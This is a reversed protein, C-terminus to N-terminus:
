LLGLSAKLQIALWDDDEIHIKIPEVSALAAPLESLNVRQVGPMSLVPQAAITLVPTGSLVADIPVEAGSVVVGRVSAAVVPFRDAPLLSDAPAGCRDSFVVDYDSGLAGVIPTRGPGETDNPARLVIVSSSRSRATDGDRPRGFVENRSARSLWGGARVDFGRGAWLDLEWKWRGLVLDIREALRDADPRGMWPEACVVLHRDARVSRDCGDSSIQLRAPGCPSAVVRIGEAHALVCAASGNGPDLVAVSHGSDVLERGLSLLDSIASATAGHLVVDWPQYAPMARAERIRSDIANTRSRSDAAVVRVPLPIGSHEVSGTLPGDAVPSELIGRVEQAVVEREALSMGGIRLAHRALAGSIAKDFGLGLGSSDQSSIMRRVGSVQEEEGTLVAYVLFIVLRESLADPRPIGDVPDVFPNIALSSTAASELPRSMYGHVAAANRAHGLPDASIMSVRKQRYAVGVTGTGELRFGNRMLRTWFEFDEATRFTDDFGGLSVVVDTRLMPSTSIFQNHGGGTTYDLTGSKQGSPAVFGLGAVEPVSVWDCWSGITAPDTASVALAHRSRLSDQFLFDDADLFTIYEGRARAIGTNRTAALGLNRDHRVVRIRDDAEAYELAIVRSSDLSCDDIVICEWAEFGQDIISRLCTALFPGDNHVPVIISVQPIPTRETRTGAPLTSPRPSLPVLRHAGRVSPGGRGQLSTGLQLALRIRSVRPALRKRM